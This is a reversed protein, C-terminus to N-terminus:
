EVKLLQNENGILYAALAEAWDKNGAHSYHNNQGDNIFRAAPDASFRQKLSAYADFYLANNDETTKRVIEYSKLTLRTKLRDPARPASPFVHLMTATLSIVVPVDKDQCRRITEALYGMSKTIQKDIDANPEDYIWVDPKFSHLESRLSTKGLTGIGVPVGDSDYRAMSQYIWDDVIDTHDVNVIVLDPEMDLVLDRLMVLYIITSYSSVGLNFVEVETDLNKFYQTLERELQAPMTDHDDNQGEVFSDGMVFVRFRNSPKPTAPERLAKWGKSNTTLTCSDGRADEYYWPCTTKLNKRFVHNYTKDSQIIPSTKELHKKERQLKDNLPAIQVTEEPLFSLLIILGIGTGICLAIVKHWFDQNIKRPSNSLACGTTRITSM